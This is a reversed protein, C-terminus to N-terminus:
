GLDILRVYKDRDINAATYKKGGHLVIQRILRLDDGTMEFGIQRESQCRSASGARM